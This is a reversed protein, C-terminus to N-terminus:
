SGKNPTRASLFLGDLRSGRTLWKVPIDFYNVGTTSPTKETPVIAFLIWYVCAQLRQRAVARQQKRGQPLLQFFRINMDSFYATPPCAARNRPSPREMWAHGIPKGIQATIDDASNYGRGHGNRQGHAVSHKGENREALIVEGAASQGTEVSRKNDRDNAHDQAVLRRRYIRRTDGGSKKESQKDVTQDM